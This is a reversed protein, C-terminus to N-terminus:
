LFKWILSKGIHYSVNKVEVGVVLICTFHQNCGQVLMADRDPGLDATHVKSLLLIVQGKRNYGYWLGQKCLLDTIETLDNNCFLM